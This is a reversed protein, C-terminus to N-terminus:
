DIDLYLVTYPTLRLAYPLVLCSCIWPGATKLKILPCQRILNGKEPLVLKRQGRGFFM